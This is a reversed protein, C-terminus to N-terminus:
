ATMQRDGLLATWRHFVTRGTRQLKPMYETAAQIIEQGDIGEQRLEDAFTTVMGRLIEATLEMHFLFGYANERYRFAQCETLESYALRVAGSPIEFIDGHWHLATVPQGIGTLLPDLRAQETFHVSHWGIEKQRGRKVETRLAAALLQSGLCIGLIPKHEELANEILHIEDQLFPYRDREYLGMPGGMVVLGDSDDPRQPVPQGDFALVLQVNCGASALEDAILGPKEVGAHQIVLVRNM